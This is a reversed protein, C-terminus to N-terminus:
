FTEARLKLINLTKGLIFNLWQRQTNVEKPLLHLSLNEKTCRPVACKCKEGVDGDFLAFAAMRCVCGVAIALLVIIFVQCSFQKVDSYTKRFRFTPM